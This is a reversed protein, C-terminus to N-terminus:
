ILGHLNVQRLMDDRLHLSNTYVEEVDIMGHRANFPEVLIDEKLWKYTDLGMAAESPTFVAALQALVSLGCGSEFASSIVPIAGQKLALRSFQVTKEIGGLVCPKLVLAKIGKKLNLDNPLICKLSEDLAAPIGTKEFFEPIGVPDFLPEEIYDIDYGAVARGFSIADPLGWSRNADLRLAVNGSIADRVAKVRDVDRELLDHGVKLKIATYGDEALRRAKEKIGEEYGTLLGNVLVNKHHNEGLLEYLPLSKEVALLNLMASEIGFRVSPFLNLCSLWREFAGDLARLDESIIVNNGNIDILQRLADKVDEQNIGPFPAIEGYGANGNEDKVRIILGSRLRIEHGMM